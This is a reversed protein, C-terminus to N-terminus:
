LEMSCPQEAAEQVAYNLMEAAFQDDRNISLSRHYYEIADDPRDLLQLTFAIGSLAASSQPNLGHAQQFAGLACDYVKEKLFAHGLNTCAAEHPAGCLSLAQQLFEIAKRYDKRHFAVVGIENYIHPDTPMLTRSYDLCQQALQLSNTRVYEMGIFLWPLHSGPFLRSATRYAALAQDSEKQLAFAHGYAIWAPAFNHDLALAKNFFRRASQYKKVMYYYCGVTFWAVATAPHANVLQHAVYFVVSKKELMVLSGIHVPLAALHYPDVELVRKSVQYCSEYDGEYFFKTSRAALTDGNRVLPAPLLSASSEDTGPLEGDFAQRLRRRRGRGWWSAAIDLSPASASGAPAGAAFGAALAGAPAACGCSSRAAALKASYMHRLWEDEEHLRLSRLLAMEQELPLVHTGVLRDLAEHCYADLQIAREYWVLAEKQNETVEYVRGRLLAFASAMKSDAVSDEDCGHDELYRLCEEWDKCALLSQAALLKLREDSGVINGHQRLLHLVRRYEHNKFYCEALTYLDEPEFHSLSALKDAYFIATTYLHKQFADQVLGRLRCCIKEVTAQDYTTGM